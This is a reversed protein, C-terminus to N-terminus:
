TIKTCKYSASRFFIERKQRQNEKWSPNHDVFIFKPDALTMWHTGRRSERFFSPLYTAVLTALAKELQLLCLHEMALHCSLLILYKAIAFCRIHNVENITVDATRLVYSFTDKKDKIKKWIPNPDVFIFKPDALTM